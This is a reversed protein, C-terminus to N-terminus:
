KESKYRKIEARVEDPTLKLLEAIDAISTRFEERLSKVQQIANHGSYKKFIYIPGFTGPAMKTVKLKRPSATEEPLDTNGNVKMEMDLMLKKFREKEDKACQQCMRSNGKRLSDSRISVLCGCLSCMCRWYARTMHEGTLRSSKIEDVKKVTLFGFNLGTLDILRNGNTTKM